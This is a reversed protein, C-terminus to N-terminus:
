LGGRVAMDLIESRNDGLRYFSLPWWILTRPKPRTTLGPHILLTADLSFSVGGQLSTSINRCRMVEVLSARVNIM